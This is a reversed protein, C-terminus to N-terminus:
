LCDAPRTSLGVSAAGASIDFRPSQSLTARNAAIGQLTKAFSVVDASTIESCRMEAIDYRMITRLVQAKTRGIKKESEQLYRAIVDALKPDKGARELGGPKRLEEERRVMWATAAQKRDFSRAERHAKGKSKIVIQGTYYSSGDQRKREVITGM